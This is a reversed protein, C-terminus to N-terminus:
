SPLPSTLVWRRAQELPLRAGGTMAATFSWGDRAGSVQVTVVGDRSEGSVSPGTSPATAAEVPLRAAVLHILVNAHNRLEVSQFIVRTSRDVVVGGAVTDVDFFAAMEATLRTDALWAVSCGALVPCHPGGLVGSLDVAPVSLVYEDDSLPVTTSPPPSPPPVAAPKRAAHQWPAAITLAIAAAVASGLAWRVAPRAFVAGGRRSWDAERQSGFSLVEDVDDDDFVVPDSDNSM